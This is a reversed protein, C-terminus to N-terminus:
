EIIYEQYGLEICKKNHYDKLWEYKSLIGSKKEPLVFNDEEILKINEYYAKKNNSITMAEVTKNWPHWTNVRRFMQLYDIYIIDGEQKMRGSDIMNQVFEPETIYENDMTLDIGIRPGKITYGEADHAKM